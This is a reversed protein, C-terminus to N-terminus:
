FDFEVRWGEPYRLDFEAKTHYGGADHKVWDPSTSSGEAVTKEGDYIAYDCHGNALSHAAPISRLIKCKLVKVDSEPPNPNEPFALPSPTL